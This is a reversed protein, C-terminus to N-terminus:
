VSLLSLAENTLLTPWPFFRLSYFKMLMFLQSHLLVLPPALPPHLSIGAPSLLIRFAQFIRLEASSSYVFFLSLPYLEWLYESHCILSFAFCAHSFLGTKFPRCARTYFRGHPFSGLCYCRTTSHVWCGGLGMMKETWTPNENGWIANTSISEEEGMNTVSFKSIGWSLPCKQKKEKSAPLPVWLKQSEQFWQEIPHM